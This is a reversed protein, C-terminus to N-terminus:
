IKGAVVHRGLCPWFLCSMHRLYIVHFRMETWSIGMLFFLDIELALCTSGVEYNVELDLAGYICDISRKICRICGTLRWCTMDASNLWNKTCCLCTHTRQPNTRVNCRAYCVQLFQEQFQTRWTPEVISFWCLLIIPVEDDSYSLITYYLRNKLPRGGVTPRKNM